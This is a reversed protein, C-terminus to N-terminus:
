LAKSVMGNELIKAERSWTGGWIDGSQDNEYSVCQLIRKSSGWDKLVCQLILM